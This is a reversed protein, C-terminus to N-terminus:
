LGLNCIAIAADSAEQSTFPRAQISCGAMLTNALYALEENRASYAVQDQYFAFELRARIYDLRPASAESGVPLARPPQALIGADFLIQFVADVAEAYDEPIPPDTAAESGAALLGPESSSSNADAARTEDIDRFYAGALPNAPPPADSGLR